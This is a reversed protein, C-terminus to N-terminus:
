PHKIRCFAHINRNKGAHFCPSMGVRENGQTFTVLNFFRIQNPKGALPTISPLTSCTWRGNPSGCDSRTTESVTTSGELGWEIGGQGWRTLKGRNYRLTTVVHRLILEDRSSLKNAHDRCFGFVDGTTIRIHFCRTYSRKVTM